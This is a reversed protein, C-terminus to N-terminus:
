DDQPFQERLHKRGRTIQAEVTKLSLGLREAIAQPGMGEIWRLRCIERRKAPLAALSEAIAAHIQSTQHEADFLTITADADSASSESEFVEREVWRRHRHERDNWDLARNRTATFLYASLDGRVDLSERSKWLRMFVDQVLEAAVERSRVIRFAYRRLPRDFVVFLQEFACPDGARLGGLITANDAATRAGISTLRRPLV